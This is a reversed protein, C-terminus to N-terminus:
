PARGPSLTPEAGDSPPPPPPPAGKVDGNGRGRPGPKAGTAPQGASPEPPQSFDGKPFDVTLMASKDPAENMKFAPSAAARLEVVFHLDNGAPVLRARYVPTNFHVTVLANTNNWVRVHAGKLIYTISGQARREEVPVSQSLQVFLRSGGDPLQEFGPINVTPGAHRRLARPGSRAPKDSYAYGAAAVSPGKKEEAAPTPSRPDGAGSPPPAGGGPPVTGQTAQAAAIAPLVILALAITV